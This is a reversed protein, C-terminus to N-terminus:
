LNDLLLNIESLSKIVPTLSFRNASLVTVDSSAYYFQNDIMSIGILTVASNVPLNLSYFSRTSFDASLRIVTRTNKFVAFVLTNKNTNNLTLTVNLRTRSLTTDLFFDSNIWHTVSSYMNYGKKPVGISTSDWPTVYGRTSPLWTFTSDYNQLSVGEFFSMNTKATADIWKLKFFTNPSMSVEQGNKSLRVFFSGGSELLYSKSTTPILFKIFDGKKRLFLIEVKITGDIISTGNGGPGGPSSGGSTSCAYPPFTIELSDSLRITRGTVVNFTDVFFLTNNIAKSISDTFGGSVPKTTWVTDNIGMTPYPIFTNTSLDKSCSSFFGVIFLIFVIKKM